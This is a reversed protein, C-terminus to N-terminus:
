VNITYKGPYHCPGTVLGCFRTSSTQIILIWSLCHWPNSGDIIYGILSGWPHLHIFLQIIENLNSKRLFKRSQTSQLYMASFKKQLWIELLNRVCYCNYLLWMIFFLLLWIIGPLCFFLICTIVYWFYKKILTHRLITKSM